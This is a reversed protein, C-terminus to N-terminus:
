ECSIRPLVSGDQKERFLEPCALKFETTVIDVAETMRRTSPSQTPRGTTVSMLKQRFYTQLNMGVKSHFVTLVLMM